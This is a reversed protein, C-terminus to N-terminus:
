DLFAPDNLEQEQIVALLQEVRTIKEAILTGQPNSSTPDIDLRNGVYVNGDKWRLWREPGFHSEWWGDALQHFDNVEFWSPTLPTRTM